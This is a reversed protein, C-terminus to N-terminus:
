ADPGAGRFRQSCRRSGRTGIPQYFFVVEVEPGLSAWDAYRGARRQYDDLVAVRTIAM